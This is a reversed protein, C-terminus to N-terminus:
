WTIAVFIQAFLLFIVSAPSSVTFVMLSPLAIYCKHSQALRHKHLCHSLSMFLRSLSLSIRWVDWVFRFSIVLWQAIVSSCFALRNCCFCSPMHLLEQVWNITFYLNVIMVPQQQWRGRIFKHLPDLTEEVVPFMMSVSQKSHCTLVNM